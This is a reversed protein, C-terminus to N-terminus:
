VQAVKIDALLKVAARKVDPNAVKQMQSVIPQDDKSLKELQTVLANHHGMFLPSLYVQDEIYSSWRTATNSANDSTKGFMMDVPNTTLYDSHKKAVLITGLETKLTVDQKKGDVYKIELIDGGRQYTKVTTGDKIEETLTTTM